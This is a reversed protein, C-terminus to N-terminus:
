EMVSNFRETQGDTQPHFATSMRRDVQLKECLRGWFHSAFQPSRDSTITEPLGHLRFVWQIFLDALDQADVTSTCPVLHRQKTLRDVVVWIADCGNSWPLGVVFDMSIDQWPTQPIPLSQLLGYPAHRSTRSRRCPECNRVFRDVDRRMTDWYYNRQLLELTKARGPHGFAPSDHHSQMLHLRLGDHRPVFFRNRYLLIGGRDECDALTVEAHRKDGRELAHLISTPTKDTQYAREFITRLPDRGDGLAIHALLRLEHSELQPKQQEAPAVEPDLNHSKLVMTRNRFTEDGEEPLDGSRRTLADPKGGQKGPRYTIKFNFRSLFEAWRAQRRNLLKSTMFYELNKYYSLVQIPNEVSQLEARWYEFARVIAMLEKDYIEYNWEAPSHKTSFFAVPHLIGDKGYQSLM